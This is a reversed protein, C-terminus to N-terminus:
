LLDRKRLDYAVNVVYILLSITLLMGGGGLSLMMTTPTLRVIASTVLLMGVINSVGALLFWKNVRPPKEPAATPM